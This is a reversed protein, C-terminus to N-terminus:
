ICRLKLNLNQLSLKRDCYTLATVSCNECPIDRFYRLPIHMIKAILLRITTRHSVAAIKSDGARDLLRLLDDYVRDAHESINGGGPFTLHTPDSEWQVTVPDDPPLEAPLKGEYKGYDFEILGPVTEICDQRDPFILKASDIARELPSSWISDIDSWLPSTAMEACQRKGNESLPIDTVGSFRNRDANHISEGHRILYIHTCSRVM